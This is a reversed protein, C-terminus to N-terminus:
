DSSSDKRGVVMLIPSGTTFSEIEVFGAAALLEQSEGPSWPHGGSRVTRLDTLASALPDDAPNYTGFLLYGGPLLANQVRALAQPVISRSIFPGSFWVHTFVSVDALDAVDQERLVIRDDAGVDAVNNAALELAPAWTDIGVVTMQPWTRIAEIALKGVGTGVDLFTSPGALSVAFRQHGAAFTRITEVILRSAQGQSQLIAPDDYSWGPARDPQELLDLAQRFFSRTFAVM